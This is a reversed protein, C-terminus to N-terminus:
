PGGRIFYDTPPFYAPESSSLASKLLQNPTNYQAKQMAM